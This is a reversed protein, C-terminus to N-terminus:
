GSEPPVRRTSWCRSSMPGSILMDRTTAPSLVGGSTAVKIVDAGMRILERVARRMEDPGDVITKPIGPHGLIFTLTNGSPMWGDGHGGTQSLMEISIQMRPGPILGDAVAQKIGLDAGGADRVTTVGGDLTRRM